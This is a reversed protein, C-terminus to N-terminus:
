GIKCYEFKCLNMFAFELGNKQKLSSVSRESDVSTSREKRFNSSIDSAGHVTLRSSMDGWRFEEEDSNKWSDSSIGGGSRSVINKASQLHSISPVSKTASYNPLGHKTNFSNRQGPLSEPLNSGDAYWPKEHGQEVIRAGSRDIGM